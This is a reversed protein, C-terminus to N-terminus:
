PNTGLPIHRQPKKPKLRAEDEAVGRLQESLAATPAYGNTTILLFAKAAAIRDPTRWANQWADTEILHRAVVRLDSEIEAYAGIANVSALEVADRVAGLVLEPDDEGKLLGGALRTALAKRGRTGIGRVAPLAEIEEALERRRAWRAAVDRSRNERDREEQRGQLEDIRDSWEPTAMYLFSEGAAVWRVYVGDLEGDYKKFDKVEPELAATENEESMESVSDEFSFETADISLFPANMAKAVDLAEDLGVQANVFIVSPETGFSANLVPLGRERAGARANKLVLSMEPGPAREITM